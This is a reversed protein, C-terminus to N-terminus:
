LLVSGIVLVGLTLPAIGAAHRVVPGLAAMRQHFVALRSARDIWGALFLALSRGLGFVAGIIAGATASGSLLELALTAYVGWTVVYTMLGAGLQVGFAGGYVWGRYAGIWHENVQRKPGPVALGLVDLAGAVIGVIATAIVLTTTAPEGIAIGGLWGLVAGVLAATGTAGIAFAAVTVAWKNERTREGLPHISSLM